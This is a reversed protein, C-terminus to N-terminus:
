GAAEGFLFNDVGEILQTFRGRKRGFEHEGHLMSHMEKPSILKRNMPLMLGSDEDLKFGGLLLDNQKAIKASLADLGKMSALATKDFAGDHLFDRIDAPLATELKEDLQALDLIQEKFEKKFRPKSTQLAVAGQVEVAKVLPLEIWEYERSLRNSSRVKTENLLVQQSYTVNAAPAAKTVPAVEPEVKTVGPVFSLLRPEEYKGVEIQLKPQCLYNVLKAPIRTVTNIPDSRFMFDSPTGETAKIARWWLEYRLDDKLAQSPRPFLRYVPPSSTFPTSFYSTAPIYSRYTILVKDIMKNSLSMSYTRRQGHTRNRAQMGKFFRSMKYEYWALSNTRVNSHNQLWKNYRHKEKGFDWTEATLKVNLYRLAYKSIARNQLGRIASIEQEVTMPVHVRTGYLSLDLSENERHRTRDLVDVRDNVYETNIAAVDEVVPDNAAVQELVPEPPLVVPGKTHVPVLMSETGKFTSETLTPGWWSADKIPWKFVSTAGLAWTKYKSGNFRTKSSPHKWMKPKVRTQLFYEEVEINGYRSVNDWHEALVENVSPPRGWKEFGLPRLLTAMSYNWHPGKYWPGNDVVKRLSHGDRRRTYQSLGERRKYEARTPYEPDPRGGKGWTDGPMLWCAMVKNVDVLKIKGNKRIRAEKRAPAIVENSSYQPLSYAELWAELAVSDDEQVYGDSTIPVTDVSAVANSEIPVVNDFTLPTSLTNAPVLYKGDWPKSGLITPLAKKQLKEKAVHPNRKSVPTSTNVRMAM